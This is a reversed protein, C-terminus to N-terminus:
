ILDLYKEKEWNTIEFPNWNPHLMEYEQWEKIKLDFYLFLAKGLIKEALKDKKLEELAEKLTAPLTAFNKSNKYTNAQCPPNPRLNEKIGELGAGLVLAFLLYPNSFCDPMRLEIRASNSDSFAPIRILASRNWFGWCVNVPAEYGPILRKYSNISPAAIACIARAHKLIGALFSKALNSIREKKDFFLNKGWFDFLSLHIHMGSGNIKAFPKPMFTISLNERQALNKAVFKFTLIKDAMELVPAYKLTIEQQGFAVEHHGYEVPIKLKLLTDFIERRIKAGKDLPTPAFYYSKDLPEKERLFFFEMEASAFCSFGMKEAEKLVKKLIFRPSIELEKEKGFGEPKEAPEFVDCLVRATKEDWPLVFFTNKIPKLILDSREVPAFKVSSGDIGKSFKKSKKFEKFNVEISRLRGLIDVFQLEIKTPRM